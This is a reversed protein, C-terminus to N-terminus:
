SKNVSGWDWDRKAQKDLAGAVVELEKPTIEKTESVLAVFQTLPM